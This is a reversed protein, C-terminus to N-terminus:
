KPIRLLGLLLCRRPTGGDAVRPVRETSTTEGAIFTRHNDSLILMPMGKTAALRRLCMIFTSTTLDEVVELHVARTTACVFLCIYAKAKRGQPDKIVYSGTHDVGVHSFPPVWQVRESPLPPPLPQPLTRGKVGQCSVCRILISKIRSRIKPTWCKQRYMSLTQSLGIHNHSSHIHKFLLDVLYSKNPLFLPTIADLPLESNNIRGKSRITDNVLHLSLQKITTKVEVNVRVRPNNLYAHISTCHLLQEQRILKEFPNDPSQCFEIVKSMIRVVRTFSSFRTLDILPQIPHIPNVEVTLKVEPLRGPKKKPVVNSVNVNTNANASASLTELFHIRIMLKIQWSRADSVNVYVEAENVETEKESLAATMEEVDCITQKVEDLLDAYTVQDHSDSLHDRVRLTLKGLSVLMSKLQDQNAM